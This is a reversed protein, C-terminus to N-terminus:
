NDNGEGLKASIKLNCGGSFHQYLKQMQTILEDADTSEITVEIVPRNNIQLNKLQREICDLRDSLRAVYDMM